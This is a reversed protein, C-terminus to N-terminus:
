ANRYKAATFVVLSPTPSAAGDAPLQDLQGRKGHPVSAGPDLTSPEDMGTHDRTRLRREVAARSRVPISAVHLGEPQLPDGNRAGRRGCGGDQVPIAKRAQSLDIVSGAPAHGAGM